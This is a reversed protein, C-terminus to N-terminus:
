FKLSLLELKIMILDSKLHVHIKHIKHIKPNEHFLKLNLHM